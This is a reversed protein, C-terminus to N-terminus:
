SEFFGWFQVGQPPPNQSLWVFVSPVTPQAKVKHLAFQCYIGLIRFHKNETVCLEVELGRDKAFLFFLVQMQSSLLLFNLSIYIDLLLSVFSGVICIASNHAICLDNECGSLFVRYCM